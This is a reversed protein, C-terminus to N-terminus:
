RMGRIQKNATKVTITKAEGHVTSVDVHCHSQSMNRVIQANSPQPEAFGLPRTYTFREPNSVRTERLTENHINIITKAMDSKVKEDEVRVLEKDKM